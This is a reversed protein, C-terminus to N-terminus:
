EILLDAYFDFITEQELCSDSINPQIRYIVPECGLRSVQERAVAYPQYFGGRNESGYIVPVMQSMTMLYALEKAPALSLKPDQRLEEFARREGVDDLLILSGSSIDDISWISTKGMEDTTKILRTTDDFFGTNAITEVFQKPDDIGYRLFPDYYRDDVSVIPLQEQQFRATLRTNYQAVFDLYSGSDSEGFARFAAFRIDKTIEDILTNRCRKYEPKRKALVNILNPLQSMFSSTTSLDMQVNRYPIMSTSKNPISIRKNSWENQPVIFADTNNGGKAIRPMITNQLIVLMSQQAEFGQDSVSTALTKEAQLAYRYSDARGGFTTPIPAPSVFPGILFQNQASLFDQSLGLDPAIDIIRQRNSVAKTALQELEPQSLTEQSFEKFKELM